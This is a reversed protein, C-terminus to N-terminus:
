VVRTLRYVSAPPLNLWTGGLREARLGLRQLVAPAIPCRAAYTFQLLSGGPQLARFASSVIALQARAGMTLLPLGSLVAQAQLADWPERQRRMQMADMQLLQARPHRQRLLSAFHPNSEVLVLQQEPLGRALLARTFAGTGPGLELVPGADARLDRTMLRALRQSSPSIAGTAAPERVWAGLFTALEQLRPRMTHMSQNGSVDM